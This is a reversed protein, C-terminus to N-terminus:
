YASLRGAKAKRQRKAKGASFREAYATGKEVAKAKRKKAKRSLQQHQKQCGIKKVLEGSVVKGYIEFRTEGIDGNMRQKAHTNLAFQDILTLEGDKKSNLEEIGNVDELLGPKRSEKEFPVTELVELLEIGAFKQEEKRKARRQLEAAAASLGPPPDTESSHFAGKAELLGDSAGRDELVVRGLAAEAEDAPTAPSKELSLPLEAALDKLGEM